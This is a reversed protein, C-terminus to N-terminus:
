RSEVLNRFREARRAVKRSPRHIQAPANWLVYFEFDTPPRNSAREFADCREAMVAKAVTLADLANTWCANTSAYRKWVEPQMQFRSVEHHPGTAQDDDGSEILSLASFRDLARTQVCFGMLCFVAFRAMGIRM